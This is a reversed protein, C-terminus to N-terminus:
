IDGRCIKNQKDLLDITIGNLDNELKYKNMGTLDDIYSMAMAQGDENLMRVKEILTLEFNEIKKFKEKIRERFKEEKKELQKKRYFELKKYTRIAKKFRNGIAKTPNDLVYELEKKLHERGDPNVFKKNIAIKFGSVGGITCFTIYFKKNDGQFDLASIYFINGNIKKITEKM